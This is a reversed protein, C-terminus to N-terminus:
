QTAIGKLNFERKLINEKAPHNTDQAYDMFAESVGRDYAVGYVCYSRIQKLDRRTTQESYVKENLGAHALSALYNFEKETM